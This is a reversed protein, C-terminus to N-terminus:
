NRKRAKFSWTIKFRAVEEGERNRGVSECVVGLGEGTNRAKEVVEFIKKGDVCTFTSIGVAKKSFSAELGVLLMSIPVDGQTAMLALVGTSMEAAMSLSAFYTSGFPNQTLRKFPISVVAHDYDIERLRIGSWFAAPLKWWLFLRYLFPNAMRKRFIEIKENMDSILCESKILIDSVM